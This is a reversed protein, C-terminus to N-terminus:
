LGISSLIASLFRLFTMLLFEYIRACGLYKCSFLAVPLIVIFNLFLLLLSGALPIFRKKLLTKNRIIFATMAAFGVPGATLYCTFFFRNLLLSRWDSSIPIVIVLHSFFFLFPCTAGIAALIFNLCKRQTM